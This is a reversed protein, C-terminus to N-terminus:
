QRPRYQNARINKAALSVTQDIRAKRTEAKKALAIWELINKKVSRPFAGFNNRAKENKSFQEQLDPPIVLNDSEELVSWSGDKKAASILRLGAATMRGDRILQEIRKKNVASWVSKPKRKAFYLYYSEQDRKNPKSDIWGFCLAEEVSQNYSISPVASDKKYIILWVATEKEGNRALWRRWAAVTNAYYTRVGKYTEMKM